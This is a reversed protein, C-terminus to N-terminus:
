ADSQSGNRVIPADGYIAKLAEIDNGTDVCQPKGKAPDYSWVGYRPLLMIREGTKADTAEYEQSNDNYFLARM